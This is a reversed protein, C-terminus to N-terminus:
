PELVLGELLAGVSALEEPTYATDEEPTEGVGSWVGALVQQVRHLEDRNLKAFARRLPVLARLFARPELAEIWGSLTDWLRPRALLADRNQSLLGEFYGAAQQADTGPSLRRTLAEDLLAEPLKGRATLMACAVGSLSANSSDGLAVQRLAEDWRSVASPDAGLDELAAVREVKELAKLSAGLTAEDDACRSATPLLLSARLFLQTLLPRLPEVSTQRVDRARVLTALEDVADAVSAFSGEDVALAQVRDCAEQAADLLDCERAQRALRAAERVNHCAALARRLARRAAAEVSEGDEAREALRVECEASWGARWAEKFTNQDRVSEVPVAFGLRLHVTRHLFASRRLDKLAAEESLVGARPRLDLWPKGTVGQVPRPEGDRRWATLDLADLQKAFDAQLPTQHGVSPLSGVRDGVAVARVFREVEERSGGGLCATAADLLDRLTPASAGSLAALAEALRVAEIVEASSRVKGEARLLGAVASLFRSAVTRSGGRLRGEWLLSQYGPAPAGDARAAVRALSYPMWTPEADVKPLRRADGDKMPPLEWRLARAHSAGCVVLVKSPEHGEEIVARIARRMYAERTATVEEPADSEYGALGEELSAMAGDFAEPDDLHEFGREWWTEQDDGDVGAAADLPDRRPSGKAESLWALLTSSPVDIFRVLRGNELGWRAAVWEPSWALYPYVVPAGSGGKPVSFLAVPPRTEGHVFPELRGNADSPGEILVASPDVAALVRRLHWSSAPSHHRM